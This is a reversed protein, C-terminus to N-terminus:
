FANGVVLIEHKGDGDIDTLVPRVGQASTVGAPAFDNKLRGNGDYVRVRPATGPGTGVVLDDVHDGDVDGVAVRAGGHQSADFAFFGGRWIQGDTKFSRVHPGGGMGAGSIIERLGDGDLDGIAVSLGGRFNKTYAFWSKRVHGQLDTVLIRPDSNGDPALVLEWPADRDAQGADISIAGKYNTGFPKFRVEKAGSLRVVVEGSQTYVLDSSGNRDLDQSLFNAGGPVDDRQAFFGNRQRNGNQDFVQLFAGNQVSAGTVETAESRRILVLGDEAPVTVKTSIAGNNTQPDQSGQLREFEGPLTIQEATKSGNVIAIGREYERSWVNPKINKADRRVNGIPATYEDYWWTRMHGADGADFSYYADAILASTLGERMLRFNNPEERNNTNTNIASVKPSPNKSLSNRLDTFTGSFGNRPFNEFLVGNSVDAYSASSNNIVLKDNGLAKRVNQILERMGAKYTANTESVPNGRGDRDPDLDSGYAGTVDSYAADLFVGDWYGTSMIEDRIFSGLFTRWTQGNVSPALTSANMLWAGPWWTARSGNAHPLFYAEPIRSALKFGPSRPDGHFRSAAIEGASVYALLKINPNLRKIEALRQPFQFSQDMDLVVVDWKALKAPDEPKIEYGLFFNILKPSQENGIAASSATPFVATIVAAMVILSVFARQM